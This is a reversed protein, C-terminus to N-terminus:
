KTKSHTACDWTIVSVGTQKNTQKNKREKEATTTSFEFDGLPKWENNEQDQCFEYTSVCVRFKFINRLDPLRCKFYESLM